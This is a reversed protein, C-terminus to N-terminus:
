KKTFVYTKPKYTKANWIKVCFGIAIDKVRIKGANQACTVHSLVVTKGLMDTKLIPHACRQEVIPAFGFRRVDVNIM